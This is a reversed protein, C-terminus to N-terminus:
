THKLANDIQISNKTLEGLNSGFASVPQWHGAVIEAM